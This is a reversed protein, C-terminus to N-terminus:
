RPVGEPDIIAYQPTTRAGYLRGLTGATDRVAATPAAGKERTL